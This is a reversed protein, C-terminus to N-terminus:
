SERQMRSSRNTSRRRAIEERIVEGFAPFREAEGRLALALPCHLIVSREGAACIQEAFDPPPAAARAVKAEADALFPAFDAFAAQADAVLLRARRHGNIFESIRTVAAARGDSLDLGSLSAATARLSAAASSFASVAIRHPRPV